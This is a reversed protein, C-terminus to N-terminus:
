TATSWSWWATTTEIRPDREICTLFSINTTLIMNLTLMNLYFLSIFQGQHLNAKGSVLFIGNLKFFMKPSDSLGRNCDSLNGLLMVYDQSTVKVYCQDSDSALARKKGGGPALPATLLSVRPVLNALAWFSNRSSKPAKSREKGEGEGAVFTCKTKM